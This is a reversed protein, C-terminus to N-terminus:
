TVIKVLLPPNSHKKKRNTAKLIFNDKQVRFPDKVHNLKKKIM